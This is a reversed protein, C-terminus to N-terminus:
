HKLRKRDWGRKLWYRTPEARVIKGCLQCVLQIEDIKHTHCWDCWGRLRDRPHSCDEPNDIIRGYM